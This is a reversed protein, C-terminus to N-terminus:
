RQDTGGVIEVPPERRGAVGASVYQSPHLRDAYIRNAHLPSSQMRRSDDERQQYAALYARQMTQMAIENLSKRRGVLDYEELDTKESLQASSATEMSDM